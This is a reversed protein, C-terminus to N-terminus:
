LAPLSPCIYNHHYDTMPFHKGDMEQCIESTHSDLTAVVEFEEVDLDDFAEKQAVSHFYAQETM